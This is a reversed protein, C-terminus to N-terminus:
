GLLGSGQRRSGEVVGRTWEQLPGFPMGATWGQTGHPLILVYHLPLYVPDTEKIRDLGGGRAHVIVDRHMPTQSAQDGCIIMGVEQATPLTFQRGNSEWPDLLRLSCHRIARNGAVYDHASMFLQAYPNTEMMRFLDQLLDAKLAFANAQAAGGVMAARGAATTDSVYVQLFKPANNGPPLLAGMFHRLEGSITFSPPGARYGNNPLQRQSASLSTFSLSNNYKRINTAFHRSHVHGITLAVGRKVKSNGLLDKLLDPPSPFPQLDVTGFSCCFHFKSAYGQQRIRTTGTSQEDAWHPADCAPCM